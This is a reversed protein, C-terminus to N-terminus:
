SILGAELSDFCTESGSHIEDVEEASGECIVNFGQFVECCGSDKDNVFKAKQGHVLLPGFDEKLNYGVAILTAGDHYRRISGEPIPSLDQVLVIGEGKGCDIAENM